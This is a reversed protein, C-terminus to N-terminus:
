ASKGGEEGYEIIGLVDDERMVLIEENLIKVTNGAYRGFLVVDGVKVDLKQLAGDPRRKWDGVALVEGQIPKEAVTEPIVIGGPTMLADEQRKVIIRDHLPRINM